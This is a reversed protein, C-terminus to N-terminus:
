KIDSRSGKSDLLFLSDLLAQFDEPLPSSLDYSRGFLEFRLRYAHLFHRPYAEKLSRKINKPTYLPDGVVPHGLSALHVRIQHTRGTKPRLEVLDYGERYSRVVRYETVAPRVTGRVRASESAVAQKALTASRGIPRDIVGETRELHGHVLALYTKSVKRDKFLRKLGEFARQTKAIALLGSTGKDLRHVIGPRLPNEGVGAIGPYRAVLWNAVTEDTETASPHVQLGAPKDLIALESDEAIVKLPIEARPSLGQAAPIDLSAKIEDGAKLRYGPKAPKAGILVQDSAIAEVLASRTLGAERIQSQDMLFSDLRKGTDQIRATSHLTIM